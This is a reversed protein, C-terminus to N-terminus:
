CASLIIFYSVDRHLILEYFAAPSPRDQTHARISRPM